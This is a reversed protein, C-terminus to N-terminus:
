KAMQKKMAEMDAKMQKQVEEVEGIVRARARTRYPRRLAHEKRKNVIILNTKKEHFSHLSCHLWRFAHIYAFSAYNFYQSNKRLVHPQIL